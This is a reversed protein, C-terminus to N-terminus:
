AGDAAPDGDSGGGPRLWGEVEALVGDADDLAAKLDFAIDLATLLAVTYEDASRTRAAVDALRVDVYRAVEGLDPGGETARLTFPRGRLVM